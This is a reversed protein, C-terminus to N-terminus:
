RPEDQLDCGEQADLVGKAHRSCKLHLGLPTAPRRRATQSEGLAATLKKVPSASEHYNEIGLRM